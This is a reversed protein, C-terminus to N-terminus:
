DFFGCGRLVSLDRQRDAYAPGIAFLDPDGSWVGTRGHLVGASHAVEFGARELLATSDRYTERSHVAVLLRAAPPLIEIAGHVADAEAGEVDMKVFTPAPLGESRVLTAATRVLVTERGRGLAHTRSTSAGGFAASGDFSSLAYPHVTVNRVRNWRLHRLLLMRNRAAPEFAHVAGSPGAHEAACLTVYGHHAGVDWVLEGPQILAALMRMQSRACRGTAYGAGASALSWWRGRNVGGLIPVPVHELLPDTLRRIPRPLHM